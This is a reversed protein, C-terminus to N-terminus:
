HGSQEGEKQGGKPLAIFGDAFRQCMAKIQFSELGKEVKDPRLQVTRGRINQTSEDWPFHNMSFFDVWHNLEDLWMQCQDEKLELRSQVFLARLMEDDIKLM